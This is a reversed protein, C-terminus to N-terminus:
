EDANADIKTLQITFHAKHHVIHVSAPMSGADKKDKLEITTVKKKKGANEIRELTGQKSIYYAFGKELTFRNYQEGNMDGVLESETNLGKLLSLSLDKKLTKILAPKDLQSM